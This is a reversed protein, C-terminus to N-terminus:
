SASPWTACSPRAQDHAPNRGAADAMRDIEGVAAHRFDAEDVEDPRARRISNAIMQMNGQFLQTKGDVQM